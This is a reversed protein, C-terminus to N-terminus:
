LIPDWTKVDDFNKGYDRDFVRVIQDETVAFTSLFGPHVDRPYAIVVFSSEIGAPFNEPQATSINIVEWTMSYNEIMTGPTYGM